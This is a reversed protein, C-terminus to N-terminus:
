FKRCTEHTKNGYEGETEWAQKRGVRFMEHFDQNGFSKVIHNKTLKFSTSRKGHSKNKDIIYRSIRKSSPSDATRRRSRQRRKLLRRLKKSWAVSRAIYIIPKIAANAFIIARSAAYAEYSVSKGIFTLSSIILYPLVCMCFSCLVALCTYASKAYVAIAIRRWNSVTSPGVKRRNTRLVSLINYFCFIIILGPAVLLLVTRGMSLICGRKDEFNMQRAHCFTTTVEFWTSSPFTIVDWPMTLIISLLWAMGSAISVEKLTFRDKRSSKVIVIYRDITLLAIHVFAVSLLTKMLMANLICWGPGSDWGGHLLAIMTMLQVILTMLVDSICQSVVLLNTCTRFRKEIIVTVILAGNGLISMLMVLILVIGHVTLASTAISSAGKNWIFLVNNYIIRRTGNCYNSLHSECLPYALVEASSTLIIFKLGSAM